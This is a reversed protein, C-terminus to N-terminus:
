NNGSPSFVQRSPVVYVLEEGMQSSIYPGSTIYRHQRHHIHTTTSVSNLKTDDIRGISKTVIGVTHYRTKTKGQNKNQKTKNKNTNTQKQKNTNTQKNTKTQKITKQKNQKNNTQNAQKNTQKKTKNKM